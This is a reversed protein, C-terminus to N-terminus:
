AAGAVRNNRNVSELVVRMRHSFLHCQEIRARLAAVRKTRGQPDDLWHRLLDPAESVANWSLDQELGAFAEALDARRDGLVLCGALPADFIRQNLATPMQRSTVNLTVCTEAYHDPLQEHYDLSGVPQPKGPLERWGDDGYLECSGSELTQWLALRDDRTLRLIMYSLLSDFERGHESQAMGSYREQDLLEQLRADPLRCPDEAALQSALEDLRVRDRAAAPLRMFWKRLAGQNSGAVLSCDRRNEASKLFRLSGALPLHSVEAFGCEALFPMWAREWCFVQTHEPGPVHGKDLIFRPSDVYWVVLPIRLSGLLDTFRGEADVGLHNVCFVIDPRGERLAALLRDVFNSSARLAANIRTPSAAAREEVPVRTVRMGLEEFARACDDICYYGSDLLLVSEVQRNKLPVLRKMSCPVTGTGLGEALARSWEPLARAYAPNHLVHLDPWGARMQSRTVHALLEKPSGTTRPGSGPFLSECGNRFSEWESPELELVQFFGRRRAERALHGLGGGVIVLMQKADADLSALSREADRLPDSPGHAWWSGAGRALRLTPAGSRATRVEWVLEPM